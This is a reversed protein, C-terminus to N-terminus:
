PSSWLCTRPSSGRSSAISMSRRVSAARSSIPGTSCCRAPRERDRSAPSARCGSSSHSSRSSSATRFFRFFLPAQTSMIAQARGRVATDFAASLDEVRRVEVVQLKIGLQRAAGEMDRVVLDQVRGPLRLVAFRSAKPVAEKLLQVRKAMLEPTFHTVGTVNGGPRALSAIVGLEVPYFSSAMVIPISATAEKAAQAAPGAVSVILDVKLRVLEAALSPYLEGRGESFRAELVHTRGEVYGTETLGRRLADLCPDDNPFGGALVGITPVKARQAAAAFPMALIGLAASTM